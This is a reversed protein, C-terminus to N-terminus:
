LPRTDFTSGPMCDDKMSMPSSRSPKRYTASTMSVISSNSLSSAPSSSSLPSFFGPASWLTECDRGWSM